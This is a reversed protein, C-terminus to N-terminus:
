QSIFIKNKNKWSKENNISYNEIAKPQAADTHLNIKKTFIFFTNFINLEVLKM